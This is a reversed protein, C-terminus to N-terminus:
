RGEKNGGPDRNVITMDQWIRLAQKAMQPDELSKKLSQSVPEWREKIRGKRTSQASLYEVAANGDQAIKAALRAIQSASPGGGGQTALDMWECALKAPSLEAKEEEAYKVPPSYKAQAIGPHPLVAGYGQERGDVRGDQEVGLGRCLLRAIDKPPQELVFVTGPLFVRRAQLRNTSEVKSGGTGHRNWGFRVGCLAMTTVDVIGAQIKHQRVEGWDSQRVLDALAEEASKLGEDTSGLKWGDPIAAPSQLVFVNDQWGNFVKKMDTPEVRLQGRGRITRAKGFAVAGDTALLEELEKAARPALAVWGSYVMPAQAIVTFLNRTEAHHVAHSTLLGPVDVSRWLQVNKAEAYRLLIGDAGKLPSEITELRYSDIAADYFRHNGNQPLKSMRHSLDVRVPMPLEGSAGEPACPLLPWFRTRADEFVAQALEPTKSALRHLIAGQVASAPIGVGTKILNNGVVPTEPCCIPSEAKFVLRVFVPPADASDLAQKEDPIRFRRPEPLPQRAQVELLLLCEGPMRSDGSLEVRCAGAGRTRGGGISFLSKLAFRIATEVVEPVDDLLRVEGNFITGAPVAETTRLSTDQATGLENLKTRAITRVEPKGTPLADSFAALGPVGDDGAEGERGLCLEDLRRPWDRHIRTQELRDRLLGKLHSAPIYPHGQHNRVVLNNCVEGGLGSGIEADSLLNISYAITKM